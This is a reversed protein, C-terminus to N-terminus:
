LGVLVPEDVEQLSRKAADLVNVEEESMALACSGKQVPKAYGRSDARGAISTLILGDQHANLLCLSYSQNGRIDDFADYREFGVGQVATRAQSRLRRVYALTDEIRKRNEDVALLQAQLTAAIDGQQARAALVDFPRAFRSVRLALGGLAIALVIGVALAAIAIQAIWPQLSEM